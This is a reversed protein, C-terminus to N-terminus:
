PAASVSVEGVTPVQDKGITVDTTGGNVTLTTYDVVGPLTMFLTAVRNYSLTYSTDDEPGAYTQAYKTKVLSRLYEGLQAKFSEAVTAPTATVDLKSVVTVHIPLAEASAVYPPEDLGAPRQGQINDFAAAVIADGVPGFDGSVLTIGVTGAGHAVSIVKADGVGPVEMAWERYHNPNGSTPPRRIRSYFRGVLAGDSEVDVGDKAEGASFSDLGVPNVLMRDITGAAVNYRSGVEQAVLIGTGTGDGGLTVAEHLDYLLGSATSFVTGAPLYTGSEGTFTVNAWARVGDKRTITINDVAVDILPGCTEDVALIGFVADLSSYIEEAKVSMPGFVQDLFGGEMTTLGVSPDTWGMLDGKIKGRTEGEFM